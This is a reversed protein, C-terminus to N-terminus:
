INSLTRQYMHKHNHSRNQIEYSTKVEDILEATKNRLNGHIKISTSKFNRGYLMVSGEATIDQTVLSIIANNTKIQKIEIEDALSDVLVNGYLYLMNDHTLKAQNAHIKWTPLKTDDYTEIIPNIFWSIKHHSYYQAKDAMIHYSISGKSNYVLVHLNTSIHIPETVQDSINCIDEINNYITLVGFFLLIIMSVILAIVWNKTKNM